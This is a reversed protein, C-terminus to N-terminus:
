TWIVDSRLSASYRYRRTTSTISHKTRSKSARGGDTVVEGMVIRTESDVQERTRETLNDPLALSLTSTHVWMNEGHDVDDEYGGSMVISYAGDKGGWIGAKLHAHM